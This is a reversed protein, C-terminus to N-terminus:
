PPLIQPDSPRSSRPHRHPHSQSLRACRRSGTSSLTSFRVSRHSPPSPPFHRKNTKKKELLLRCVLDYPSQLESTHEESREGRPAPGLLDPATLHPRGHM